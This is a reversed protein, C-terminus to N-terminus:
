IWGTLKALLKAYEIFNPWSVDSPVGHDCGPIYGGDELLPPVVRMVEQRIVEGGKAIARKDIGGRYAMKRGYKKRYAVIDNGAAVEVPSCCQIGSEIWIPILEGIFGDSDMAVVKCGGGKLEPIWRLYSPVLFKRTMEPSIMSHAKFAMDESIMVSDLEVREMIPALTGSVFSTWFSAM